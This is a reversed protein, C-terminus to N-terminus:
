TLHPLVAVAGDGYRWRSTDVFPWKLIEKAAMAQDSINVLGIKGTYANEGHEEKQCRHEATILLFISIVMKAMDGQYLFNNGVGYSRKCEPGM